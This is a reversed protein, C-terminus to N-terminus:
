KEDLEVGFSDMLCSTCLNEKGVRRTKKRKKCQDCIEVRRKRPSDSLSAEEEFNKVKKLKKKKAM